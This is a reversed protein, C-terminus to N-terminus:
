CGGQKWLGIAEILERLTPNSSDVKWLDIFAFMETDSVCGDKNTDSKHYQQSELSINIYNMNGVSTNAATDLSLRMVQQGASLPVSTKGVTQWIQWGGTSPDSIQGTKDEGNFEIHFTGSQGSNVATRVQIDYTGTRTVNVTYELWEGPRAWGINYGGGTDTCEEIDVGEGTRYAGGENTATTDHYALGEGGNDFDEVQIV